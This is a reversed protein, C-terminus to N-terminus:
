IRESCGEFRFKFFSFPHLKRHQRTSTFPLGSQNQKERKRTNGQKNMNALGLSTNILSSRESEGLRLPALRPKQM